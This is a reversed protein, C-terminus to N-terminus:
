PGIMARSQSFIGAGWRSLSAAPKSSIPRRSLAQRGSRSTTTEGSWQTLKKMLLRGATQMPMPSSCSPGGSGNM